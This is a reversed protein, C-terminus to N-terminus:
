LGSLFALAVGCVESTGGPPALSVNSLPSQLPVQHGCSLFWLHSTEVAPNLESGGTTGMRGEWPSMVHTLILVATRLPGQGEWGQKAM